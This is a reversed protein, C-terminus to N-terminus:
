RAKESSETERESEDYIESARLQLFHCGLAIGTAGHDVLRAQHAEPVSASPSTAPRHAHAAGILAHCLM